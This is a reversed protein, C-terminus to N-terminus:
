VFLSEFATAVRESLAKDKSRVQISSRTDAARVHVLVPESSIDQGLLTAAAITELKITQVSHIQLRRLVSGVGALLAVSDGAYAAPTPFPASKAETANGVSKWAEAYTKTPIALPRLLSSVPLYPLSVRFLAQGVATQASFTLPASFFTARAQTIALVVAFEEGASVSTTVIFSGQGNASGTSAGSAKILVVSGNCSGTPAAITFSSNPVAQNFRSRLILLTKTSNQYVGHTLSLSSAGTVPVSRNSFVEECGRVTDSVLGDISGIVPANSVPAFPDMALVSIPTSSTAAPSIDMAGLSAFIDFNSSATAPSATSTAVPASTSGAPSSFLSFLDTSAAPSASAVAAPSTAPVSSSPMNFLGFIDTSAAVPATAVPKVASASTPKAAMKMGSLANSSTASTPGGSTPATTNLGAFLSKAFMANKANVPKVEPRRPTFAVSGSENGVSNTPSVHIILTPDQSSQTSQSTSTAISSSSSFTSSTSSLSAPEAAPVPAVVASPKPANFGKPGWLKPGARLKISEEASLSGPSSVTTADSATPASIISPMSTPLAAAPLPASRQPKEYADFRLSSKKTQIRTNEGAARREDETMYSRAGANRSSDVFSDLFSLREDVVVPTSYSAEPFASALLAPRALLEQFEYAAQQLTTDHSIQADRVAEVVSHPLAEVSRARRILSVSLRVVASFAWNRVSPDPYTNRLAALLLALIDEMSASESTHGFEGLVWCIAKMMLDPISMDSQLVGVYYDVAARRASDIESSSGELGLGLEDSSSGQSVLKLVSTLLEPAVLDGSLGFVTNMTTVFWETSPAYREALQSIRNTLDLRLYQDPTQRLASIFREVIATVNYGNTMSYLLEITKRRITEDPDELCDVVVAQHKLAYEPDHTILSALLALGLYKLNHLASTPTKGQEASLFHEVANACADLLTKNPYIQTTTRVCEFVIAYGVNTGVAGRRICESIVDYMPESARRDANGLLAFLRLIDLQIWPAPIRHYDYERPLRHEVVQKLISVLSPVLEKHAIPNHTAMERLLVLSAGMVCPDPDCIAKRVCESCAAEVGRDLQFFRQLCIVAKKRILAQTHSLLNVVTPMVAPIIDVNVLKVVVNLAMSVELFNDSRLDTQLANVLLLLFEHDKHLTLSVAMYGVRKELLNRSSVMNIANIHGFSADHGLMEAYIMRILYEKMRKPLVNKASM